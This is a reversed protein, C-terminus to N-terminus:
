LKEPFRMPILRFSYQLQSIGPLSRWIYLAALSRITIQSYHITGTESLLEAFKGDDSMYIFQQFPFIAMVVKDLRTFKKNEM